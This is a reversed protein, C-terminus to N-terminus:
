INMTIKAYNMGHSILILPLLLQFVSLKPDGPNTAIPRHIPFGQQRLQEGLVM